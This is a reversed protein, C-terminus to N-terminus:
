ETVMTALGSRMGDGGDHLKKYGESLNRGRDVKWKADTIYLM